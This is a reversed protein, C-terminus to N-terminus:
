EGDSSVKTAYTLCGTYHPNWVITPNLWSLNLWDIAVRYHDMTVDQWRARMKGTRPQLEHKWAVIYITSSWPYFTSRFIPDLNQIHKNMQGRRGNYVSATGDVGGFPAATFLELCCGDSVNFWNLMRTWSHKLLQQPPLNAFEPACIPLEISNFRDERQCRLYDWEPTKRENDLRIVRVSHPKPVLGLFSDCLNFDHRDEEPCIEGSCILMDCIDCRVRLEEQCYACTLSPLPRVVCNWRSARHRDTNGVNFWNISEDAQEDAM